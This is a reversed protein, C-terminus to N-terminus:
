LIRIEKPGSFQQLHCHVRSLSSLSISPSWELPSPPPPNNFIRLPSPSHWSPRSRARSVVTRRNIWPARPDPSFDSATDPPTRCPILPLSLRCLGPPRPPPLGSNLPPFQGRAQAPVRPGMLSSNSLLPAPPCSARSPLTPHRPSGDCVIVRGSFHSFRTSIPRAWILAFEPKLDFPPRVSNNSAFCFFDRFITPPRPDLSEDCTPPPFPEPLSYWGRCCDVFLTTHQSWSFFSDSRHCFFAV